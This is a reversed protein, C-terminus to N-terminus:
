TSAGANLKAGLSRLRQAVLTQLRRATEVYVDLGFGIPDPVDEGSPDLLYVKHASEPAMSRIARVHSETLGYVVEAREVMAVSLPTSRHEPVPIGLEHLADSAELAAPSGSGAAIGASAVFFTGDEGSDRLMSEAIAQAMPSRCTNGTCVFLVTRLHQQGPQDVGTQTM